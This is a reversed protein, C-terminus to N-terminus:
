IFLLVAVNKKYVDSRVFTCTLRTLGRLKRANKRTAFFYTLFVVLEKTHEFLHSTMKCWTMFIGVLEKTHKIRPLNRTLQYRAVNGRFM